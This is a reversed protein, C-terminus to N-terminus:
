KRRVYHEEMYGSGKSTLDVSPVVSLGPWLPANPNFHTDVEVFVPVRRVVKVFNGTADEPPLLSFVAGAGPQFSGIHGWYVFHPYADVKIKVKQGIRMEELQTEKYNAEIWVDDLNVVSFLIDGKEVYKGPDVEERQSVRGNCPAYITTRALDIKALELSAKYQNITALQTNRRNNLLTLNAKEKKISAKVSDVNAKDVELTTNKEDYDSQSVLDDELLKRYRLEEKKAFLLEAKARKLEATLREIERKSVLIESEIETLTSEASDLLGKREKVAATYDNDEIKVIKQGKKVLANDDVFVKIIKGDVQTSLPVISAHVYADDTTEHTLLYKVKPISFIVGAVVLVGIIFRIILKKGVYIRGLKM